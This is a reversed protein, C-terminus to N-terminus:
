CLEEKQPDRRMIVAGEDPNHYYRKRLGAQVFAHRQYLRMAARNSERVELFLTVDAGLMAILASLLADGLGKGRMEPHVAIKALEAEDLVRQALLFGLLGDGEDLLALLISCPKNAEDLFAHLSWSEEPLCLADLAQVAAILSGDDGCLRKVRPQM